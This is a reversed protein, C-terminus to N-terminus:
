RRPEMRALLRTNRVTATILAAALGFAAVLGGVDFLQHRGLAGLDVHPNDFLAITGIALAIRRETPGFWLFSLAAGALAM